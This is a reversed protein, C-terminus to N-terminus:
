SMKFGSRVSASSSCGRGAYSCTRVASWGRRGECNVLWRGHRIGLVKRKLDGEAVDIGRRGDFGLHARRGALQRAEVAADRGAAHDDRRRLLLMVALAEEHHADAEHDGAARDPDIPAAVQLERMGVDIDGNAVGEIGGDAPQLIEHPAVFALHLTVLGFRMAHDAHHVAVFAVAEDGGRGAILHIEVPRAHDVIGELAQLLARLDAERQARPRSPAARLGARDM